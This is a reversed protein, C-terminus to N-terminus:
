GTVQGPVVGSFRSNRTGGHWTSELLRAMRSPCAGGAALSALAGSFMPNLPGLDLVGLGYITCLPALLVVALVAADDLPSRIKGSKVYRLAIWAPLLGSLMWAYLGVLGKAGIAQTWIAETWVGRADTTKIDFARGYGGWGFVPQLMARSIIANELELRTEFSGGANDARGGYM